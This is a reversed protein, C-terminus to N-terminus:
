SAQVKKGDKNRKWGSMTYGRFKENKGTTPQKAPQQKEESM